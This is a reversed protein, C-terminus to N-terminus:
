SGHRSPEPWDDAHMKIPDKEGAGEAKAKQKNDAGRDGNEKGRGMKATM